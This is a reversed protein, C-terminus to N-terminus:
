EKAIRKTTNSNRRNVIHMEDPTDREVLWDAPDLGHNQMLKKQAVTPRKGNKM